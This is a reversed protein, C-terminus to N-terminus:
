RLVVFLVIAAAVIGVTAAILIINRQSLLGVAAPTRTSEEDGETQPASQPLSNSASDRPVRQGPLIDTDGCRNVTPPTLELEEEVPTSESPPPPVGNDAM